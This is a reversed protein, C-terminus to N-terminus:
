QCTRDLMVTEVGFVVGYRLLVKGFDKGGDAGKEFAM